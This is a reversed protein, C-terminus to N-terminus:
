VEEWERDRIKAYRETMGFRARPHDFCRSPDADLLAAGQMADRRVFFANTAFRNTGVFGYGKEDALKLFAPLSAGAYGFGHGDSEAVFRPDYPVTVAARMGWLHNMEVVVIEPTIGTIARWVWYDNGDVDISLLRVSETTVKKASAIIGDVNEATVWEERFEPPWFRSNQKSRYFDDAIRGHGKGGDVLLGTFLHNVILNATNNETGDGAGIEVCGGAGVGIRALLYLLLGDEEHQSYVRFGVDPRAQLNAGDDRRWLEALMKQELQGTPAASVDRKKKKM